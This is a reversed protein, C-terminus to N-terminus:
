HTLGKGAQEQKERLLRRLLDIDNNKEAAIIRRQLAETARRQKRGELQALVRTCGEDDWHDEAIALRTLLSRQRPNEIAMIVDAANRNENVCQAAITRAIARLEADEFADLLNRRIIEPIIARYGLMMALVQRELRQESVPAQLSARPQHGQRNESAATERIKGMITSEDINLREAIQKIYLGRAVSDQVSVLPATLANVTKVKGELSMGHEQVATELLFPIMAVAKEAQATFDGPGKERLFADPDYGKPLILIRADVYGAEFTPISRRAAKIGAQDSDYVLVIHGDPGVLGKLLQAHEGTLATGLTAVTNEFGYLHMALVDFYGEVVYIRGTKRAAPRARDIGYLSRSKAYLPTEPSNLYKPLDDGMVRGGFGIVQRGDNFIPFIVRNRFRDYFGSHDKRAIVLGVKAALDPAVRQQRLFRLLGDWQEPAYGLGYGDIIKRTMGRGLLYAMARQGLQADHLIRRYYTLAAENIQFLQERESLRAQEAPSLREAPIEIGYRDALKRAAEPFTLGQHQMLFSIANGGTHCGFCYFIQKEPSVSFSPTKEAHFPCLGLYNRGAKKLVVTEGIVDVINASSRIRQIVDEPISRALM